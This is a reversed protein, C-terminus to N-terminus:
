TFKSGLADKQRLLIVFFLNKIKLIARPVVSGEALHFSTLPFNPLILLNISFVFASRFFLGSLM